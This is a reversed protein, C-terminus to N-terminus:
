QFWNKKSRRKYAWKRIQWKTKKKRRKVESSASPISTDQTSVNRILNRPARIVQALGSPKEFNHKGLGPHNVSSGKSLSSYLQYLSYATSFAPVAGFLGEAFPLASAISGVPLAKAFNMFTCRTCVSIYDEMKTPVNQM